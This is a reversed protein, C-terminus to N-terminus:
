KWEEGEIETTSTRRIGRFADIALTMMIVSCILQVLGSKWDGTIPTILGAFGAVCGVITCCNGATSLSENKLYEYKDM